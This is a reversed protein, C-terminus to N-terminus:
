AHSDEGASGGLKHESPTLAKIVMNAGIAVFIFPWTAGYTFGFWHLNCALCWAGTVLELAGTSREQGPLPSVLKVLGAGILVVPWYRWISVVHIMGQQAMFVLAGAAILLAGTTMQRLWEPGRRSTDQIM